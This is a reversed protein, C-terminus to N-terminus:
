RGPTGNSEAALRAELEHVRALLQFVARELHGVRQDVTPGYPAHASTPAEPPAPQVTSGRPGIIPAADAFEEELVARRKRRREIGARNCLPCWVNGTPTSRATHNRIEVEAISVHCNSCFQLADRTKTEITTKTHETM